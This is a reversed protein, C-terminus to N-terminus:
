ERGSFLLLDQIDKLMTTNGLWRLEILINLSIIPLLGSIGHFHCWIPVATGGYHCLSKQPTNFLPHSSILIRYGLMVTNGM